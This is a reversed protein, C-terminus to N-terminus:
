RATKEIRILMVSEVGNEDRAVSAVRDGRFAPVPSTQLGGPPRVKGLYTGDAAFVDMAPSGRFPMVWLSGDDGVFFTLIVPHTRPIRSEDIRGGSQQFRRLNEMARARQEPTVPIPAEAREVVRDVTGDFHYRTLRYRDTIAVWVFGEADLRWQQSASFPVNVQSISRNGGQERVMEFVPLEFPPILFTDRPQLGPDYRVLGERTDDHRTVSARDYLHGQRDFGLPWPTTTINVNRRHTTVFRGATDYVAYRMNGGDLVWLTGDAAWTMGSIGNFEEPGGGKRGISRVHAGATDFVSIQHQQGDAVWVRGLPDIEVDVIQAFADPGEGDASGITAQPVLKWEEGPKWAGRGDSAEGGTCATALCALGAALMPQAVLRRSSAVPM